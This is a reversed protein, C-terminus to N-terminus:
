PQGQGSERTRVRLKVRVDYEGKADDAFDSALNSDDDVVLTLDSEHERLAQFRYSDHLTYGYTGDRQSRQELEVTLVHPGPSVFGEFVQRSDDGRLASGDGRFVPAGDLTLVVRVLVPDPAALNQVNLRLRTKFLTKGLLAARARAQVMDDILQTVDSQLSALQSSEVAASAPTGTPRASAAAKPSPESNAARTEPAASAPADAGSQAASPEAPPEVQPPASGESGASRVSDNPVERAQQAPAGGNAAHNGSKASRPKALAPPCIALQACVVTGWLAAMFGSQDRIM